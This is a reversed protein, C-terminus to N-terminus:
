YGLLSFVQTNDHIIIYYDTTIFLHVGFLTSSHDKDLNMTSQEEKIYLVEQTRRKGWNLEQGLVEASDWQVNHRTKNAHVALENNYYWWMVRSELAGETKNTLNERDIWHLFLKWMWMSGQLGSRESQRGSDQEEIARMLQLTRGTEGIYSTSGCECQVKYVVGKVKDEVIKKARVLLGRLTRSSKFVLRINLDYIYM